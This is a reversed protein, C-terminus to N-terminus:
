FHQMQIEINYSLLCTMIQEIRNEPSFWNLHCILPRVNHQVFVSFLNYLRVQLLEEQFKCLSSQSLDSCVGGLHLM